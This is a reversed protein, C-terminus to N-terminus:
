YELNSAKRLSNLKSVSISFRRATENRIESLAVRREYPSLDGPLDNVAKKYYRIIELHKKNPTQSTNNAAVREAETKRALQDSLVAIKEEQAQIRQSLSDVQGAHLHDRVAVSEALASDKYSVLGTLSDVQEKLEEGEALGAQFSEEAIHARYEEARESKLYVVGVLAAILILGLLLKKMTDFRMGM